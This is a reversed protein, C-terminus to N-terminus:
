ASISKEAEELDVHLVQSVGQEQMTVGYLLDAEEMTGRRHTIVIFQTKNSLRRMYAAFRLVNAEDLAAEIEDMVCFPTPRIKQIAFYLAIAVFAKEGGSLLSITKLSKGPPQVAIEIGCGLVDEPDELTLSCKGGSFLETFTEQFSKTINDFERLFIEQMERSIRAALNLLEIRAKEVDDRQGTLYTYRGNVREYEQIAGINPTGLGDIEKRLEAAKRAAAAESELPRRLESAASYTLSYTDWLKDLLQKEEMDAAIKKQELRSLSRELDLLMGNKGQGAKEAKTREGELELKKQRLQSLAQKHGEDEAALLRLREHQRELEAQESTCRAELAVIMREKEAKDSDMSGCLTSLEAVAGEAAQREAELAALGAAAEGMEAALAERRARLAEQGRSRAEIQRRIEDLRSEQEDADAQLRDIALTQVEIKDRIGRSEDELTRCNEALASLQWQWAKRSEQRKLIDDELERLAGQRELLVAHENQLTRRLDELEKQSKELSQRTQTLAARLKKIENSRSLVGTTKAASGGTMAGGANIVQGDLTVIRFRNGYAKAMEVADDITHVVAVRGLLSQCVTRYKEGCRALESALGVFGECDELGSERLVTPKIISIPLFTARGGGTRKLFQIAYKGDEPREVIINQAAGGLATEIALAYAADTEILRAVPGHINRLTGRSKERMVLKVAKNFGEMAREMEELISLRSQITKLEMTLNVTVRDKEAEQEKRRGLRLAHGQIQNTLAEAQATMRALESDAAEGEAQLAALREATRSLEGAGNEARDRLAALGSVGASLAARNESLATAAQREEETLRRFADSEDGMSCTVAEMQAALGAQRELIAASELEIAQIREMRTRIQGGLLEAREAQEKQEAALRLIASRNGSIEAEIAAVSKHLETNRTSAETMQARIREAELDVHRMSEALATAQEYLAEMQAQEAQLKDRAAQCDAALTGTKEKLGDLATLWLSVHLLRLEDRLLLYRRATEAQERLPELQLELEALKDGIRLLNEETRELKREAEEKRYRYRSIGAAEEFIGRREVSKLSLIEGIRGQDIIAYGDRGMGTDMLIDHIDKLRVPKRNLLYESDGSRFYRRTIM